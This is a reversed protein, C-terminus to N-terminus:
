KKKCEKEIIKKPFLQYDIDSFIVYQYNHVCCHLIKHLRSRVALKQLLGGFHM